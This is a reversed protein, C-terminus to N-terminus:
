VEGNVYARILHHAIAFSFPTYFGGTHNQELMDAAEQRTFWRADELEDPDITIEDSLGEATCGIMLASPFPWPQSSHYRVRGTEIGAEEYVERRVTEELSEGPEVFGALTSYLNASFHTQRGLLCKEGRHVLMIAVPDVRPFHERGCAPCDRKAGGEGMETKAGCNACYGHYRHWETISKALGLRALPQPAIEAEYGLVRIDKLEGGLEDAASEAVTLAFLPAGAADIGLFIARAAGDDSIADLEGARLVMHDVGGNADRRVLPKGKHLLVFGADDRAKLEQIWAPDMREKQARNLGHRTFIHELDSM